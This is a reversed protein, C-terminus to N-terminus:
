DHCSHKPTTCNCNTRSIPLPPVPEYTTMQHRDFMPASAHVRHYVKVPCTLTDGYLTVQFDYSGLSDVEWQVAIDEKSFHLVGSASYARDFTNQSSDVVDFRFEQHDSTRQPRPIWPVPDLPVAITLTDSRECGYISRAYTPLSYQHGEILPAYFAFQDSQCITSDSEDMVKISLSDVEDVHANIFFEKSEPHCKVEPTVKVEPLDKVSLIEHDTVFCPGRIVKRELKYDSARMYQPTAGDVLKGEIGLSWTELVYGKLHVPLPKFEVNVSEGVCVTSRDLEFDINEFDLDSEITIAVTTNCVSSGGASQLVVSYHGSRSALIERTTDGTSWLYSGFHNFPAILKVPDADESCNLKGVVEIKLTSDVRATRHDKVDVDAYAHCGGVTTMEVFFHGGHDIEIAQTTSGDSWLYSEAGAPATLVVPRPNDCSLTGDVSIEITEIQASFWAIGWHGLLNCDGSSIELRVTTGMPLMFFLSSWDRAFPYTQSPLKDAKSKFWGGSVATSMTPYETNRWDKGKAAASVKYYGCEMPVNDVFVQYSIHPNNDKSQDDAYHGPDQQLAYTALLFRQNPETIQFTGIAMAGRGGAVASDGLRISPLGTLPCVLPVGGIPDYADHSVMIVDDTENIQVSKLGKLEGGAKVTASFLDWNDAVNHETLQYKIDQADVNLSAIGCIFVCAKRIIAGTYPQPKISRIYRLHEYLQNFRELYTM